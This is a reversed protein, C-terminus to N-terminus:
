AAAEQAADSGRGPSRRMLLYYVLSSVIAASFWAGDFLFRLAPVLLGLGAVAVGAGLAWIAAHNVGGRYTYRGARAYLDAAV